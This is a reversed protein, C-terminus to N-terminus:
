IAAIESASRRHDANLTSLVNATALRLYEWWDAPNQEAWGAQHSIIPAEQQPYSASAICQGSEAEVLSVKVSSSGIDYGLLIM